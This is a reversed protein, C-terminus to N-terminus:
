RRSVPPPGTQTWSPRRWQLQVVGDILRRSRVKIAVHAAIACRLRCSGLAGDFTFSSLLTGVVTSISIIVANAAGTGAPQRCMLSTTTVWSLTTCPTAGISMSATSDTSGFNSGWLTQTSGGTTPGNAAMLSTVM